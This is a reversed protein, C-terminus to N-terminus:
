LSKIFFCGAIRKKVSAGCIGLLCIEHVSCRILDLLQQRRHRCSCGGALIEAVKQSRSPNAAM